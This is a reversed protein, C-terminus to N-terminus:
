TSKQIFLAETMKAAAPWHVLVVDKKEGTKFYIINLVEAILIHIQLPHSM